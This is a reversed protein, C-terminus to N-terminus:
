LFLMALVYWIALLLLIMYLIYGYYPCMLIGKDMLLSM